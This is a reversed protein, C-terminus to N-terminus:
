GWGLASSSADRSPREFTPLSCRNWHWLWIFGCRRGHLIGLIKRSAWRGSQRNLGLPRDSRWRHASLRPVSMDSSRYLETRDNPPPRCRWDTPAFGVVLQRACARRSRSVRRRSGARGERVFVVLDAAVAACPEPTARPFRAQRQSPYPWCAPHGSDIRWSGDPNPCAPTMLKRMPWRRRESVEKQLRRTVLILAHVLVQSTIITPINGDTDRIKPIAHTEESQPRRSPFHYIGNPEFRFCGSVIRASTDPFAALM